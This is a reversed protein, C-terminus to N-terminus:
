SNFNNVLNQPKPLIHNADKVFVNSKVIASAPPFSFVQATAVNRTSLIDCTSLDHLVNELLVNEHTVDSLPDQLKLKRLKVWVQKMLNSALTDVSPPPEVKKDLAKTNDSVTLDSTPNQNLQERDKNALTDTCRPVVAGLEVPSEQPIFIPFLLSSNEAAVLQVNQQLPPFGLRELHSVGRNACVELGFHRQPLVWGTGHLHPASDMDPTLFATPEQVSKMWENDNVPLTTMTMGSQYMEDIAADHGMSLDPFPSDEECDGQLLSWTDENCEKIATQAAPSDYSSQMLKTFSFDVPQEAENVVQSWLGPQNQLMSNRCLLRHESESINTTTFCSDLRDDQRHMFEAPAGKLTDFGESLITPSFIGRSVHSGHGLPQIVNFRENLILRDGISLSNNAIRELLIEEPVDDTVVNTMGSKASAEKRAALQLKRLAKRAQTAEEAKAQLENFRHREWTAVTIDALEMAKEGMGKLHESIQITSKCPQSSSFLLPLVRHQSDYAFLWEPDLVGEEIKRTSEGERLSTKRSNGRESRSNLREWPSEHARSSCRAFLPKQDSEHTRTAFVQPCGDLQLLCNILDPIHNRNVQKMELVPDCDLKKTSVPLGQSWFQLLMLLKRLDHGSAQVIHEVIDPSCM